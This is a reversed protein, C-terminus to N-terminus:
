RSVESLLSLLDARQAAREAAYAAAYAAAAAAAYAAAYAAYAAYAAAREAAYAAYAAAREAADAAAYAASAANAAACATATVANAAAYAADRCAEVTVNGAVCGRAAHAAARLVPVDEPRAHVMARDAARCAVEVGVARGGRDWCCRLAWVLDDVNPTVEAWKALPIPEDAGPTRGLHASLDSIRDDLDCARYAHLESITISLTM